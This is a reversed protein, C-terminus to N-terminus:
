DVGGEKVTTGWGENFRYNLILGPTTPPLAMGRQAAIEATTRAVNWLRFDAFSADAKEDASWNSRGIYNNTRVLQLPEIMNAMTGREVGDIVIRGTGGAERVFALHTWTRLPLSQTAAFESKTGTSGQYVAFVPIGTAGGSLAGLVNENGSGNGFDFLRAWTAHSNLYVWGEVTFSNTFWAGDPVDVYGNKLNFQIATAAGATPPVNAAASSTRGALLTVLVLWASLLSGFRRLAFLTTAPKM